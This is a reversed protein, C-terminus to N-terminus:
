HGGQSAQDAPPRNCPKKHGRRRSSFTVVQVSGDTAHNKNKSPGGGSGSAVPAQSTQGTRHDCREAVNEAIEIIEAQAIVKNWSSLELNLKNRPPLRILFSQLTHHNKCTSIHGTAIM